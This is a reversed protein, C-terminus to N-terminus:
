KQLYPNKFGADELEKKAMDAEANSEYPGVWVRNYTEKSGPKTPVIKAKFGKSQVKARMAEAEKENKTAIIQWYLSPRDAVPTPEPEPRSPPTAAATKEEVPSEATTPPLTSFSDDPKAAKTLEPYDLARSAPLPQAQPNKNSADTAANEALRQGQSRGVLMGLVFFISCLVVIGGFVLLTFSHGKWSPTEEM